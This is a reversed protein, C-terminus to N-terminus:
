AAPVAELKELPREVNHFAEDIDQVAMQNEYLNEHLLSASGFRYDTTISM